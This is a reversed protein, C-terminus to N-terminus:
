NKNIIHVPLCKEKIANIILHPRIDYNELKDIDLWYYKLKSNLEVSELDHIINRDEINKFECRYVFMIEHYDNEKMYFFNEVVAFLELIEIEKGLEEFIERKITETTTEGSKVRGGILGYHANNINKHFLIKNDHIIIATTRFNFKYDGIDVTIDEIKIM